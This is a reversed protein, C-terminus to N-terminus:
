YVEDEIDEILARLLIQTQKDKSWTKIYEVTKDIDKRTNNEEADDLAYTLQQIENELNTYCEECPYCILDTDNVSDLKRDVELKTRCKSCFIEM